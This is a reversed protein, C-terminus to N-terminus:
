GDLALAEARAALEHVHRTLLSDQSVVGRRSHKKRKSEPSGGDKNPTAPRKLKPSGGDKDPTAPRKLKAAAPGANGTPVGGPIQGNGNIGHKKLWPVCLATCCETCRDGNSPYVGFAAMYNRPQANPQAGDKLAISYAHQEAHPLKGEVDAATLHFDAPKAKMEDRRPNKPQTAFYIKQKDPCYYGAMIIGMKAGGAWNYAQKTKQMVIKPIDSSPTTSKILAEVDAMGTWIGPPGEAVTKKTNTSTASALTGLVAVLFSCFHM